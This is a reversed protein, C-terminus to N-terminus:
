LWSRHNNKIIIIIILAIWAQCIQQLLAHVCSLCLPLKLCELAGAEIGFLRRAADCLMGENIELAYESTLQQGEVEGVVGGGGRWGELEDASALHARACRPIDYIGYM